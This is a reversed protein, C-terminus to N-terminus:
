AGLSSVGAKLFGGMLLRDEAGGLRERGLGSRYIEREREERGREREKEGM